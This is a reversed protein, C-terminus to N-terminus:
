AGSTEFFISREYIQWLLINGIVFGDVTEHNSSIASRYVGLTCFKFGKYFLDALFELINELPSPNIEQESCWGSWAKEASEYQSAIKNRWTSLLIDSVKQSFGKKTLKAQFPGHLWGSTKQLCLPHIKKTGPLRLLDLQRPLLLPQGALLTLIVPYWRRSKWASTHDSCLTVSGTSNKQSMKQYYLLSPIPLGISFGPKCQFSRHCSGWTRTELQCVCSCSPECTNCLSGLNWLLWSRKTIGSVSSSAADM